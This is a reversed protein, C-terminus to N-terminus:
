SNGNRRHRKRHRASRTPREDDDADEAATPEQVGDPSALPAPAPAAPELREQPVGPQLPPPPAPSVAWPPATLTWSPQAITPPPADAGHGQSPPAYVAHEIAPPAYQLPDIRDPPAYPAHETPIPPAYVPPNFPLAPEDAPEDAAAVDAPPEPVPPEEAAAPPEEDAPEEEPPVEAAPVEEPPEEDAPEEEPPVEDAPEVEPPVEVVVLEDTMQQAVALEDALDELETEVPIEEVALGDGRVEDAHGDDTPLRGASLDLTEPAPVVAAGDDTLDLLPDGEVPLPEDDVPTLAGDIPADDLPTPADDLPAPADDLPAPAGDVPLPLAPPPGYPADFPLPEYGPTTEVSTEAPVPAIEVPPQEATAPAAGRLQAIEADRVRLEAALRDLLLDTEAFRYGRLAVPLRVADIEEPHLSRDPPLEWPPEDRLPPAIQEGAPLFRAALAFLGAALLIALLGYWVLHLVGDITGHWASRTVNVSPGSRSWGPFKATIAM